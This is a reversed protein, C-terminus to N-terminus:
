SHWEIKPLIISASFSKKFVRRKTHLVVMNITLEQIKKMIVLMCEAVEDITNVTADYFEAPKAHLTFVEARLIGIWAACRGPCGTACL